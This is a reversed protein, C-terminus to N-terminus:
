QVRNWSFINTDIYIITNEGWLYYWQLNYRWNYLMEQMCILVMCCCFRLTIDIDFYKEIYKVFFSLLM